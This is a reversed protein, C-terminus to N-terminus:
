YIELMIDYFIKRKIKKYEVVNEIFKIAKNIGDCAPYYEIDEFHHLMSYYIEDDNYILWAELTNIYFFRSVDRSDIGESNYFEGLM